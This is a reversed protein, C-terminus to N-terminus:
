EEILLKHGIKYSAYADICGYEVQKEDLVRAEWNSLCVHKPKPMYLNVVEWALDKLGPRRFRGPWRKIALARIDATSACNLGYENRLKLVDDGVEVGVFTVTPDDLFNKISQPIYDMYFLQLILCKTDVCLQLTATKNSMSRIPHPRWECDLGVIIRQGNNYISRVDRVWDEAVSAKDTVITEIIKGSFSVRQTSM